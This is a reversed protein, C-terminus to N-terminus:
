YGRKQKEEKDLIAQKLSLAADEFQPNLELVKRFDKMAEDFCGLRYLVLGRNYYPVEFGPQCEIAATYDEIAAAFEVRLYKIQGRDNLATALHRGAGAAPGACRAILRSYLEEAAALRRAALQAQAAALLEAAEREM